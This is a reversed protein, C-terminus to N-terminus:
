NKLWKQCGGIMDNKAKKLSKKDNPSIGLKNAILKNYKKDNIFDIFSFILNTSRSYDGDNEFLNDEFWYFLSDYKEKM